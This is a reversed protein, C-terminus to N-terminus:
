CVVQLFPFVEVVLAAAVLIVDYSRASCCFVYYFVRYMLSFANCELGCSFTNYGAFLVFSLQYRVNSEKKERPESARDSRTRTADRSQSSRGSAGRSGSAQQQQQQQQQLMVSAQRDEEEQLRM